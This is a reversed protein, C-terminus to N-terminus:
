SQNIVGCTLDQSVPRGWIHRLQRGWAHRGPGEDHGVEDVTEVLSTAGRVKDPAEAVEWTLGGVREAVDRLIDGTVHQYRAAM